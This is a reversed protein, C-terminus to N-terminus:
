QFLIDKATYNIKKESKVNNDILNSIAKFYLAYGDNNPNIGASLKNYPTGSDNFVKRMDIYQLGYYQAIKKIANPIIEYNQFSSEILLIVDSKPNKAIVERVMNEYKKSWQHIDMQRDNQGYCLIVLDYGSEEGAGYEKIGDDIGGGPHVKMDTKDEVKYTQSIWNQLNSYWQRKDEAGNSAAIGDGIILTSISKGNRLKDYLNYNAEKDKQQQEKTKTQEELDQKNEKLQEASALISLKKEDIKDKMTGYGIVFINGIILFVLFINELKKMLNIRKEM